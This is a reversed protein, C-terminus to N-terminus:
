EGAAYYAYNQPNLTSNKAPLDLCGNWDYTERSDAKSRLGSATRIYLHALEHLLVWPQYFIMQGWLREQNSVFDTSPCYVPRNSKLPFMTFYNPCLVVWHSDTWVMAPPAGPKTCEDYMDRKVTMRRMTVEGPATACALLPSVPTGRNRSPAIPAGTSVNTLLQTVYSAYHDDKFFGEFAPSTIGTESDPIAPQLYIWLLNLARVIGAAKDGCAYIKYPGTQIVDM